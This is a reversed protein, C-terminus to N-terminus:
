RGLRLAPAARAAGLPDPHTIALDVDLIRLSPRSRVQFNGVDLLSLLPSETTTQNSDVLGCNSSLITWSYLTSVNPSGSFAATTDLNTTNLVISSLAPATIGNQDIKAQPVSLM